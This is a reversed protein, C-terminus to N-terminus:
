RYASFTGPGRYIYTSYSFTIQRVNLWLNQPNTFLAINSHFFSSIYSVPLIYLTKIPFFILSKNEQYILLFTCTKTKSHASGSASLWIELLSCTYSHPSRTPFRSVLDRALWLTGHTAM